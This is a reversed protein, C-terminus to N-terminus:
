TPRNVRGWYPESHSGGGLSVHAQNTCLRCVSNAESRRGQALLTRARTFKESLWIEDISAELINGMMTERKADEYCLLVDGTATVILMESPAYCPTQLIESTVVPLHTLTGARNTLMLDEPFEVIQFPREPYATGDHSTVVFFEIGAERLSGYREDSLLDGNTFLIQHAKPLRASTLAVLRELDKRLLPENYFHYSIRGAYDLGRLQSLLSEFVEDKMYRPVGPVPLISVPCYSCARNCRSNIEVEVANFMQTTSM